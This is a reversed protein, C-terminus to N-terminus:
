RVTVYRYSLRSNKVCCKSTVQGQQTHTGVHKSAHTHEDALLRNFALFRIYILCIRNTSSPSTRTSPPSHGAAHRPPCSLSPHTWCVRSELRFRIKKIKCPLHTLIWLALSSQWTVVCVCVPEMRLKCGSIHSQTVGPVSINVM